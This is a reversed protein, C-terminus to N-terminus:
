KKLMKSCLYYILLLILLVLGEPGFPTRDLAVNVQWAKPAAGPKLQTRGVIQHQRDLPRLIKESYLGKRHSRCQSNSEGEDDNSERSAPGCGLGWRALMIRQCARFVHRRPSITVM